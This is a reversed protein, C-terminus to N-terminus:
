VSWSGIPIIIGAQRYLGDSSKMDKVPAGGDRALADEARREYTAFDEAYELGHEKKWGVWTLFDQYSTQFQYM